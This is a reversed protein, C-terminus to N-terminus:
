STATQGGTADLPIHSADTYAGSAEIVGYDGSIGVASGSVKATFTMEHNAGGTFAPCYWIESIIPDARTGMERVAMAWTNGASDTLTSSITAPTCAGAYYTVAFILTNGTTTTHGAATVLPNQASFTAGWSQAPAIPAHGGEVLGSLGSLGTLAQMADSRGPTRTSPAASAPAAPM